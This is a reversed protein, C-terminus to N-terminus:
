IKRIQIKKAEDCRLMICSRNLEVAITSGALTSKVRKIKAGKSLGFSFFRKLLENNANFGEIIGEEGDKLIDLTM